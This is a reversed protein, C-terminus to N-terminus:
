CEQKSLNKKPKKFFRKQVKKNKKSQKAKKKIQSKIIQNKAWSMM